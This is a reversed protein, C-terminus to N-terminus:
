AIEEVDIGASVTISGVRFRGFCVPLAGGQERRNIAGNFLFSVKEEENDYDTSPLPALAQYIGGITLIGGMIALQTYTLGGVLSAGLSGEAFIAAGMSAGGTLFATGIMAVGLVATIIGKGSGGGSGAAVPVIHLDDSGFCFDLMDEGILDGELDAGRVLQYSGDRITRCFDPFNAQMGRVVDSVSAAELTFPGGYKEHLFGHLHVTKM